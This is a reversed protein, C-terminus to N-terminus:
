YLYVLKYYRTIIEKLHKEDNTLFCKSSTLFVKREKKPEIFRLYSFNICVKKKIM